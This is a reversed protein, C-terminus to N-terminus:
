KGSLRALRQHKLKALIADRNAYYRAKAREICLQRNARYYATAQAICKSRNNWYYSNDSVNRPPLHYDTLYPAYDYGPRLASEICLRDLNLQAPSLASVGDNLRCDPFPCSFCDHYFKCSFNM